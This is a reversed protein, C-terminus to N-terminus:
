THGSPRELRTTIRGATQLARTPLVARAAVPSELTQRLIAPITQGIIALDLLFSMNKTYFVDMAIMENFTTKNKGNVQWLGTIGPPANVRDRHAPRRYRQFEVVTCPRPGVLSMEGRIVNFIQPLEDLGTTRLFRGCPILRPDSADLKTMPSGSAMLQQLYEEHTRTEANVHMTRFKFIMFHKGRFGVRQQRYITPGPSAVKVICMVLTALPLWIWATCTLIGIDIIRKWRPIRPDQLIENPDPENKNTAFLHESDSLVCGNIQNSSSTDPVQGNLRLDPRESLERETCFLRFVVERLVMSVTSDPIKAECSTLPAESRSRNGSGRCRFPLVRDWVQFPGRRWPLSGGKTTQGPELAPSEKKM